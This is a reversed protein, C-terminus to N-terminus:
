GRGPGPDLPPGLGGGEREQRALEDLRRAMEQAGEFLGPGAGPGGSASPPPSKAAAPGPERAAPRLVAEARRRDAEAERLAQAFNEVLSRIGAALGSLERTRAESQGALAQVLEATEVRFSSRDRELAEQTRRIRELAEAWSEALKRLAGQLVAARDQGSRAEMEALRSGLGAIDRGLSEKLEASARAAQEWVGPLRDVAEKLASLEGRLGAMGQSTEVSAATQSAAVRGLASSWSQLTKQQSAELLSDVGGEFFERARKLEAALARRSSEVAEVTGFDPRQSLAEALGKVEARLEKLEQALTRRGSEVAAADPRRGLAEALGGVDAKLGELEQALALQGGRLAELPGAAPKRELAEALGGVETRLGKLEQALVRQVSEVVEQPAAAPQRKLTEALGVIEAKLERLGRALAGHGAVEAKLDKLERALVGQGAEVAQAAKAAGANQGAGLKDLAATWTGFMKDLRDELAEIRGRARSADQERRMHESITKLQQEIEIRNSDQRVARADSTCAREHEARVSRELDEIRRMLFERMGVEAVPAATPAPAPPNPPTTFLAAPPSAAPPPAQAPVATPVPPNPPTTFLAAPPSAAPPPAQASAPVPTKPPTFDAAPLPAQVPAPAPTQPFTFRAAPPFAASPLAQAPAPSHPPTFLASIPSAAPPPKQVPAAAKQSSPPAKSAARLASFLDNLDKPADQGM